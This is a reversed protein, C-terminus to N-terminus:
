EKEKALMNQLNTMIRKTANRVQNEVERYFEPPYVDKAKLKCKPCLRRLLRQAVVLNVATGVLFPEIGMDVLRTVTSSADNTHLTSFVLHGTLSAQAAANLTEMDRIEGVMIVDPDQRLFSKLAAFFSFGVKENVQVQQVLPLQYEIPDEVTLIKNELSKIENLAAYLTTTKGSGTPGTILVIGFPSAIINEFASLNEDELGLDILKLLIKQQDLIRMVISEGFFTPTTSLRFDYMGSDIEMSFRGDQAKRRESIDLNGLIKIRSAIANYIALEFVFIEHLIGDVRCRVSVEHADPEIHIDSANRMIADKIVLTILRMVASEDSDSKYTDDSIERKVEQAIAKTNQIIEIRQFINRVDEDLALFLKIPKSIVIHELAELADYNLPNSTAIYIYEDDERLPIAEANELVHVPYRAILKFDLEEGYIDIFEINLQASLERAIEKYTVYGEQILLEGLKKTFNSAKQLSLVRMLQEHTILGKEILLDGLRVVQKIM